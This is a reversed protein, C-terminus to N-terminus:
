HNIFEKNKRKTVLYKIFGSIKSSLVVLRENLAEFEKQNIYGLRFSIFLQSRVEGTSGKAIALYRILENNNSMEFGEAINSSISVAARRIQDRLGFDKGFNGSSSIRYIEVAIDTSEKWIELDEFKDIKM